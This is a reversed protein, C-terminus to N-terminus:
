EDEEKENPNMKNSLSNLIQLIHNYRGVKVSKEPKGIGSLCLYSVVGTGFAFDVLDHSLSDCTNDTVLLTIAEEKKMGSTFAILNLMPSVMNVIERDIRIVNPIIKNFNPDKPAEEHESHKPSGPAGGKAAPKGGKAKPDTPTKQTEAPTKAPSEISAKESFKEQSREQSMESNQSRSDSNEDDEKVAYVCMEKITDLDSQFLKSYGIQVKTEKEAIKAIFKKGGQIDRDSFLDEVYELLPHDAIMKEYLDSM